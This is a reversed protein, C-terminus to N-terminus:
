CADVGAIRARTCTCVVDGLTAKIAEKNTSAHAYYYSNAGKREINHRLASTSGSGSEVDPSEAVVAAMITQSACPLVLPTVLVLAITYVVCFHYALM